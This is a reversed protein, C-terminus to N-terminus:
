GTAAGSPTLETHSCLSNPETRLIRDGQHLGAISGHLPQKGGVGGFPKQDGPGPDIVGKPFVFDCQKFLLQQGRHRHKECPHIRNISRNLGILLKLELSMLGASPWAPSRRGKRSTGNPPQSSSRSATEKQLGM